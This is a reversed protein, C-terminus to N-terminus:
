ALPLEPFYTAYFGRTDRTLLRDAHELAHAAILFDALVRQRSRLPSGCQTCLVDQTAGCQTCQLATTRTRAYDRWRTGALYLANQTSPQLRVGAQVLFTAQGTSDPFLGAIEACVPESIVVAGALHTEALLRRAEAVFPANPILLDFFIASDVATTM